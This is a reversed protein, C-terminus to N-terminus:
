TILGKDVGPIALGSTASIYSKKVDDTALVMALIHIKALAIKSDQNAGLMFIPYMQIGPRGSREDVTLNLVLPKQITVTNSDIDTVKAVIEEATVLKLSVIDGVNATKEILM